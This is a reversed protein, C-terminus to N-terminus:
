AQHLPVLTQLQKAFFNVDFPYTASEKLGTRRTVQWEGDYSALSLTIQEQAHMSLGTATISVQGKPGMADPVFVVQRAAFSLTMRQTRFPSNEDPYGKSQALHPEYEFTMQGSNKLPAMWGEIQQYLGAISAEWHAFDSQFQQHKHEENRKNADLLEGLRQVEDMLEDKPRGYMSILTIDCGGRLTALCSIDPLLNM